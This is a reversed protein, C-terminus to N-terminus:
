LIPKRGQDSGHEAQSNDDPNEKPDTEDGQNQPPDISGDKSKSDSESTSDDGQSTALHTDKTTNLEKGSTSQLVTQTAMENVTSHPEVFSKAVLLPGCSRKYRDLVSSIPVSTPLHIGKKKNGRKNQNTTSEKNASLPSPYLEHLFLKVMM